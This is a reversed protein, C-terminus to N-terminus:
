SVEFFAELWVQIWLLSQRPTISIFDGEPKRRAIMQEHGLLKGKSSNLASHYKTAKGFRVSFLLSFRLSLKMKYCWRVLSIVVLGM